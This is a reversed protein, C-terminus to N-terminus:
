YTKNLELIEKCNKDFDDANDEQLIYENTSISSFIYKDSCNILYKLDEKMLQYDCSGTEQEAIWGILHDIQDERERLTFDVKEKQFIDDNVLIGNIEIGQETIKAEM